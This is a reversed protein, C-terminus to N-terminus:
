CRDQTQGNDHGQSHSRHKASHAQGIRGLRLVRWITEFTRGGDHHLLHKVNELLLVPVQSGSALRAIEFFLTGRADQFGERKGALSFAQCPFGAALCHVGTLADDRLLRVDEHTPPARFAREYVRRADADIEASVAHVGGANELAMRASGLGAFLDAFAFRDTLVGRRRLWDAVANIQPLSISNGLLRLARAREDPLPYCDPFGMLARLEDAGLVRPQGDTRRGWVVASPRRDNGHALVTTASDKYPPYHYRVNGWAAEGKAISAMMRETPVLADDLDASQTLVDCQWDSTRMEWKM